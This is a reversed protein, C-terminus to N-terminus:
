QKNNIAVKKNNLLISQLHDLQSYCLVLIPGPLNFVLTNTGDQKDFPQLYFISLQDILFASVSTVNKYPVINWHVHPAHLFPIDMPACGHTTCYTMVPRFSTKALTVNECAHTMRDVPPLVQGLVGGPGPLYM